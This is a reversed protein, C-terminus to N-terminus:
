RQLKQGGCSSKMGLYPSTGTVAIGHSEAGENGRPCHCTTMPNDTRQGLSRLCNRRSWIWGPASRPWWWRRHLSGFRRKPVASAARRYSLSAPPPQTSRPFQVNLHEMILHNYSTNLDQLGTKSLRPCRSTYTSITLGNTGQAFCILNRRTIHTITMKIIGVGGPGWLLM